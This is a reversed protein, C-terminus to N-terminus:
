HHFLRTSQEVFVVGEKEAVDMVAGDNQSGTPAAIYRAGSRRARYVNDVFPFFADSSVCVEDLKDLWERREQDSFPEPVSGEPFNKAFDQKEFDSLHPTLEGSCLLDIANSKEPRKVGKAFTLALVRPHFRM